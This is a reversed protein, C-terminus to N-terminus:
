YWTLHLWFHKCLMGIDKARLRPVQVESDASAFLIAEASKKGKGAQLFAFDFFHVWSDQTALKLM